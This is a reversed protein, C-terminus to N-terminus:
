SQAYGGPVTGGHTWNSAFRPLWNSFASLDASLPPFRLLIARVPGMVPGTRARGTSSLCRLTPGHLKRDQQVPGARFGQRGLHDILNAFGDTARPDARARPQGRRAPEGLLKRYGAIGNDAGIVQQQHFTDQLGAGGGADIDGLLHRGASRGRRGGNIHLLQRQVAAHWHRQTLCPGLACRRRRRVPQEIIEKRAPRARLQKRELGPAPEQLAIERM